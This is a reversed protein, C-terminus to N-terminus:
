CYEQFGRPAPTPRPRLPGRPPRATARGRGPRPRGAGAPRPARGTRARGATAGGAGGRRASPCTRPPPPPPRAARARRRARAPSGWMRGDRRAPPPHRAASCPSPGTPPRSCSRRPAWGRRAPPPCWSWPSGCAAGPCAPPHEGISCSDGVGVGFMSYVPTGILLFWIIKCKEFSTIQPELQPRPNRNWPAPTIVEQVAGPCHDPSAAESQGKRQRKRPACNWPRSAICMSMRFISYFSRITSHSSSYHQKTSAHKSLDTFQVSTKGPPSSRPPRGPPRSHAPLRRRAGRPGPPCASYCIIVFVIVIVIM